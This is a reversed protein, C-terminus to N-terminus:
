KGYKRELNELSEEVIKKILEKSFDEINVDKNLVYRNLVDHYFDKIEDREFDEYAIFDINEVALLNGDKFVCRTVNIGGPHITLANNGYIMMKSANVFTMALEQAILLETLRKYGWISPLYAKQFNPHFRVRSRHFAWYGNKAKVLMDSEVRGDSYHYVVAYVSGNENRNVFEVDAENYAVERPESMRKIANNFKLYATSDSYEEGYFTPALEIPDKDNRKPLPLQIDIIRHNM